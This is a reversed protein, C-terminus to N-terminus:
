ITVRVHGNAGRVTAKAESPDSHVMPRRFSSSFVFTTASGTSRRKSLDPFSSPDFLTFVVPHFETSVVDMPADSSRTAQYVLRPSYM